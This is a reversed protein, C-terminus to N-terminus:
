LKFWEYRREDAKVQHGWKFGAAGKIKNSL